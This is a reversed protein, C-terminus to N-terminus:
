KKKKDIIIDATLGFHTSYFSIDVGCPEGLETQLASKIEEALPETMGFVRYNMIRGGPNCYQYINKLVSLWDAARYWSDAEALHAKGDSSEKNFPVGHMYIYDAARGDKFAILEEISHDIGLIFSVSTIGLFDRSAKWAGPFASQGSDTSIVDFGLAKAVYSIGGAGCGIELFNPGRYPPRIREMFHLFMNILKKRPRPPKGYFQYGQRTQIHPGVHSDYERCFTEGLISARLATELETQFHRDFFPHERLSDLRRLPLLRFLRATMGTRGSYSKQQSKDMSGVGETLIAM